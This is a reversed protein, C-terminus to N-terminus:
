CKVLSYKWAESTLDRVDQKILSEGEGLWGYDKADPDYKPKSAYGYWFGDSDMAAYKFGKQTALQKVIGSVAKMIKVSVVDESFFKQSKEPNDVQEPKVQESKVKKMTM